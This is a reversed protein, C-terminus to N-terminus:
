ESFVCRGTTTVQLPYIDSFQKEGSEIHSLRQNESQKQLL